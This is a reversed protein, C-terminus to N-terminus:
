RTNIVVNAFVIRVIISVFLAPLVADSVIKTQIIAKEFNRTLDGVSTVFAAVKPNYIRCKCVNKANMVVVMVLM